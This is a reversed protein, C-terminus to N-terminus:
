ERWNIEESNNKKRNINERHGRMPKCPQQMMVVELVLQAEKELREEGVCIKKFHGQEM